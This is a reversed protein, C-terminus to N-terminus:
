TGLAESLNVIMGATAGWIYYGNYPMAYFERRVGKDLRSHRQHNDPNVLFSLPAEFVEAVESPDPRLLFPSNVIAVVPVVEYGTRTVYLDLRGLLDIKDATLGIEEETERLATAEYSIDTPEMRGGPFSVQGAHDRLHKTRQTLILTLGSPRDVIPVLVAAKTLINPLPESVLNLDQDGRSQSPRVLIPTIRRRLRNVLIDRDLNTGWIWWVSLFSRM